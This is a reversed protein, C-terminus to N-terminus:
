HLSVDLGKKKVWARLGDVNWSTIKMNASRGDKSTMKDPPDDYLVPAEPEKAKKTKKTSPEAHDFCLCTLYKCSPSFSNQFYFVHFPDSKLTYCHQSTGSGADNEGEAAADETKKGRKMSSSARVPIVVQRCVVRVCLVVHAAAFVAIKHKLCYFSFM